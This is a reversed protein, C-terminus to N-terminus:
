QVLRPERRSTLNVFLEQLNPLDAPTRIHVWSGGSVDSLWQALEFDPENGVMVSYFVIGQNALALAEEKALAKSESRPEPMNALREWGESPEEAYATSISFLLFCCAVM